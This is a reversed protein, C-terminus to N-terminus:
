TGLDDIPMTTKISTRMADLVQPLAEVQELIGRQRLERAAEQLVQQQRAARGFDNDAHRTRAYQLATKGDMRQLGPEILLRVYGYDDTPYEADLITHPVDVTIGDIADVLQEFGQFNVQATYDIKLGLFEEVTDAALAAGAEDPRTGEGYIEPNSYGWTYASTIKGGAVDDRYPIQVFTDRPISLMSAWKNVPDVHVVILTDSRAGDEPNAERADVGILLVNFAQQLLAPPPGQAEVEKPRVDKVDAIDGLTRFTRDWVIYGLVVIIGFILVLWLVSSGGGGRQHRNRYPSQAPARRAPIRQVSRTSRPPQAM